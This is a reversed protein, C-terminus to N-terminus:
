SPSTGKTVEKVYDAVAKPDPYGAKNYLGEYNTAIYDYHKKVDSAKYKNCREMIKVHETSLKDVSWDYLELIQSYQDFASANSDATMTSTLKKSEMHSSTPFKNKFYINGM